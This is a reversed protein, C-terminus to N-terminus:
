PHKKRLCESLLVLASGATCTEAEDGFGDIVNEIDLSHLKDDMLLKLNRATRKVALFRGAPKALETIELVKCCFSCEGCAKGPIALM